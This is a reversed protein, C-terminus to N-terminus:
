EEKHENEDKNSEEEKYYRYTMGSYWSKWLWYLGLLAFFLIVKEGKYFLPMAIFIMANVYACVQEARLWRISFDSEYVLTESVECIITAVVVIIILAILM